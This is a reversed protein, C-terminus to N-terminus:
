EFAGTVWMVAVFNVLLVMAWGLRWSLVQLDIQRQRYRRITWAVSTFAFFPALYVLLLTPYVILLESGFHRGRKALEPGITWFVIAALLFLWHWFKLRPLLMSRTCM